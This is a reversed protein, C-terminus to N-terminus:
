FNWKQPNPVPSQTNPIIDFGKANSYYTKKVSWLASLPSASFRLPKQIIGICVFILNGMVLEGNGM